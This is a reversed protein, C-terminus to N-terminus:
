PVWCLSSGSIKAFNFRAFSYATCTATIITGPITILVCLLSATAWGVHLHSLRLTEPAGQLGDLFIIMM